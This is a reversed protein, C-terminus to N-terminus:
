WQSFKEADRYYEGLEKWDSEKLWEDPTEDRNCRGPEVKASESLDVYTPVNLYLEMKDGFLRSFQGQSMVYGRPACYSPSLRRAKPNGEVPQRGREIDKVFKAYHRALAQVPINDRLTYPNQCRPVRGQLWERALYSTFSGPEEYPGFPNPIVFHHLDFEMGERHAYFEYMQRTLTKSLGYASAPQVYPATSTQSYQHRGGPIPDYAGEGGEFYTGTLLISTRAKACARLNQALSRTDYEVAGLVNFDPSRHGRTTAAHQCWLDYKWERLMDSFYMDTFDKKPRCGAGAAFVQNMRRWKLTGTPPDERFAVDVKHGQALLERVLHMGTFSSAGTFLIRM